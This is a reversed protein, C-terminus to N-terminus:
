LRTLCRHFCSRENQDQHQYRPEQKRSLEDRWALWLLLVKATCTALRRRRMRMARDIRPARALRCEEAVAAVGLPKLALRAVASRATARDGPARARPRATQGGKCNHCNDRESNRGIHQEDLTGEITGSTDSDLM